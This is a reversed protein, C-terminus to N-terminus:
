FAAAFPDELTEAVEIVVRLYFYARASLEDPPRVVGPEVRLGDIVGGLMYSANPNHPSGENLIKGLAKKVDAMLNHAEDTPHEESGSDTWGQVLVIWSDKQQLGAGAEMPNRDPNLAEILAVCPLPTESGFTARGRFIRKQLNHQYGNAVEITELHATLAKLIQLRKSDAV